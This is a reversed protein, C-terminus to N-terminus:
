CTRCSSRFRVNAGTAKARSVSLAPRHILGFPKTTHAAITIAPSVFDQLLGSFWCHLLFFFGAQGGLLNRDLGATLRIALFKRRIFRRSTIVLSITRVRFRRGLPISSSYLYGSSSWCRNLGGYMPVCPRALHVAHCRQQEM